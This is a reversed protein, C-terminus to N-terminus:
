ATTKENLGQAIFVVKEKRHKSSSLGNYNTHMSDLMIPHEGLEGARLSYSEYDPGGYHFYGGRLEFPTFTIPERFMMSNFTKNWAYDVLNTNWSEQGFLIFNLVISSYITIKQM